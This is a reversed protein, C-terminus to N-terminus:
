PAGGTCTSDDLPGHCHPCRPVKQVPQEVRVLDKFYTVTGTRIDACGDRAVVFHGRVLVGVGALQMDILDASRIDADSPTPGGLVHNHILLASNAGAIVARRAVHVRSFDASVVGGKAIQEVAILREDRDLWYALLHEVDEDHLRLAAHVVAMKGDHFRPAGDRRLKAELVDLAVDIALDSDTM